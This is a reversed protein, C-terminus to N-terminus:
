FCKALCEALMKGKETLKIKREEEELVLGLTTAQKLAYYIQSGIFKRAETFTALGGSRGLFLLLRGTTTLLEKELEPM